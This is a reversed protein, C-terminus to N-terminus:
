SLVASRSHRIKTSVKLIPIPVIVRRCAALSNGWYLRKGVSTDARDKRADPAM